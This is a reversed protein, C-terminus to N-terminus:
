VSSADGCLYAIAIQRDNTYLSPRDTRFLEQIAPAEIRDIFQNLTAATQEANYAQFCLIEEADLRRALYFRLKQFFTLSLRLEACANLAMEMFTSLRQDANPFLDNAIIIDFIGAPWNSYWDGAIWFNRGIQAGLSGMSVVEDHAFIDVLYYDHRRALVRTLATVGGGVDLVRCGTRVFLLDGYMEDFILRKSPTSSLWRHAAFMHDEPEEKERLLRGIRDEGLYADLDAKEICHMARMISVEPQAAPSCASARRRVYAAFGRDEQDVKHRIAVFDGFEM